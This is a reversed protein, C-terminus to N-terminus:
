ERFIGYRKFLVVMMMVMLYEMGMVMMFEKLIRRIALIELDKRIKEKKPLQQRQPQHHKDKQSPIKIRFCFIINKVADVHLLM